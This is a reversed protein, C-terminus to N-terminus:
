QANRFYLSFSYTLKYQQTKEDWRFTEQSTKSTTVKIEHRTKETPRKKLVDIKKLTVDDPYFDETKLFSILREITEIIEDPYIYAVECGSKKDYEDKGYITVGINSGGSSRWDFTLHSEYEFDKFEQLIDSLNNIDLISSEFIKKLYKM